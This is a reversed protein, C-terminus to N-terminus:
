RGVSDWNFITLFNSLSGSRTMSFIPVTLHVMVCGASSSNTAFNRSARRSASASVPLGSCNFACLCSASSQGAKM